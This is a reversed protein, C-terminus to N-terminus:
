IEREALQRYRYQKTNTQDIWQARQHKNKHEETSASKTDNVVMKINFGEEGLLRITIHIATSNNIPDM